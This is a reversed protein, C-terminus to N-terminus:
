LIYNGKIAIVFKGKPYLYNGKIALINKVPLYDPHAWIASM